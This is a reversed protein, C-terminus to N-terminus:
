TCLRIDTRTTHFSQVPNGTDKCARVPPSRNSTNCLFAHLDAPNLLFDGLYRFAKLIHTQNLWLYAPQTAWFLFDKRDKRLHFVTGRTSRKRKVRSVPQLRHCEQRVAQAATGFQMTTNVPYCCSTRQATM